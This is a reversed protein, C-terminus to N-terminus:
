INGDLYRADWFLNELTIKTFTYAIQYSNGCSDIM